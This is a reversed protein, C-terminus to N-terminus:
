ASLSFLSRVSYGIIKVVHIRTLLVYPHEDMRTSVREEATVERNENLEDGELVEKAM